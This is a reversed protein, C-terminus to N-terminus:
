RRVRDGEKDGPIKAGDKRRRAIVWQHLEDYRQHRELFKVASTEFLMRILALGSYSHTWMDFTRAEEVLALHKDFCHIENIDSPLVERFQNHSPKRIPKAPKPNATKTKGPRRSSPTAKPEKPPPAQPPEKIKKRQNAESRWQETFKRMVSSGSQYAPNNLDVDTKTTKWPLKGPTQSRFQRLGCLWLLRFPIENYGM